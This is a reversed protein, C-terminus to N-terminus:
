ISNWKGGADGQGAWWTARRSNAPLCIPPSLHRAASSVRQHKLRRAMVGTDDHEHCRLERQRAARALRLALAPPSLFM